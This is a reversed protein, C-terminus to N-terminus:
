KQWKYGGEIEHERLLKIIRQATEPAYGFAMIAADRNEMTETEILVQLDKIQEDLYRALDGVLEKMTM